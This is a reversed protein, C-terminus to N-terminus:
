AFAQKMPELWQRTTLPKRGTIKKFDKSKQNTIKSKADFFHYLEMIGDVQWEPFGMGMFAQKAADYPVQVYEVKKGLVKTFTKAYDAYSVPAMTLKYLKKHHATPNALIAAAAAGIDQVAIPTFKAKSVAPAYIKGESQVSQQSAFLNDLFFPLRLIAYPVNSAILHDEVPKFQRGFISDTDATLVSVLLIFKVNAAKAANIANKALQEREIHGPVIVFVADANQLTHTLSSTDNMDAAVVKVNSGAAALEKAKDSAPDRVGAEVAVLSRYADSALTAVTASGVYGSTGITVVRLPMSFSSSTPSNFPETFSPWGVSQEM